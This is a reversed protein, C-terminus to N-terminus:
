QVKKAAPFFVRCGPLTLGILPLMEALPANMMPVGKRLIELQLPHRGSYVMAPMNGSANKSNCLATNRPM